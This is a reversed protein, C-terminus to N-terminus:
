AALLFRKLKLGTEGQQLFAMRWGRVEEESLDPYRELVYELDIIDEELLALITLKRRTVWRCGPSPLDKVTVPVGEHIYARGVKEPLAFSSHAEQGTVLKYGRGWVTQILKGADPHSARLGKRLYCIEVDFIKQEPRQNAGHYLSDFLMDKTCTRDAHKALFVFMRMSLPRLHVVTGNVEVTDNERFVVEAQGCVFRYWVPNQGPEAWRNRLRYGLGRVTEILEAGRPDYGTFISRLNCVHVDISAETDAHLEHALEARTVTHPRFEWLMRLVKEQHPTLRIPKGAFEIASAAITLASPGTSVSLDTM